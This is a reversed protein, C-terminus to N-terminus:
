SDERRAGLAARRAVACGTPGRHFPQGGSLQSPNRDAMGSLQVLALADEVMKRDPRGKVELAFAVNEFVSLHPFLAYDQFVTHVDRKYAPLKTVDQGNIIIRGADPEEFGAIMRLTTTKGSGSAGLMTFFENQRITLNVRDAARVAGFSRSCNEVQVAIESV